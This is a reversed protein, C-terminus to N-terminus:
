APPSTALFGDGRQEVAYPSRHLTWAAHFSSWSGGRQGVVRVRGFRYAFTNCGPKAAAPRWSEATAVPVLRRESGRLRLPKSVPRNDVWVRWFSPRAPLELVAVRTPRGVAGRGLDVYRLPLGPAVVEYYLRLSGGGLSSMGVQLWEDTHGPGANPGGVGVWAAVHGVSVGPAAASTLTAAVGAVGNGGMVGAYAYGAASCAAVAGGAEGAAPALGPWM